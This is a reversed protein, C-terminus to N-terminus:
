RVSVSLIGGLSWTQAARKHLFSTGNFTDTNTQRRKLCLNRELVFINQRPMIGKSSWSHTMPQPWWSDSVWKNKDRLKKTWLQCSIRFQNHKHPPDKYYQWDNKDTQCKKVNQCILIGEKANSKTQLHTSTISPFSRFTIGHDLVIERDSKPPRQVGIM